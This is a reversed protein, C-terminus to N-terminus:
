NFVSIKECNKENFLALRTNDFLLMLLFDIWSDSLLVINILYFQFSSKNLNVIKVHYSM